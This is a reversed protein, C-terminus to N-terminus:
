FFFDASLDGCIDYTLHIKKELRFFPLFFFMETFQVAQNALLLRGSSFTHLITRYQSEFFSKCLMEAIELQVSCMGTFKNSKYVLFPCASELLHRDKEKKYRRIRSVCSTELVLTSHCGRLVCQVSRATERNQSLLKQLTRIKRTLIIIIMVISLCVSM